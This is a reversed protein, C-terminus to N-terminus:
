HRFGLASNGGMLDALAEPDDMRKLHKRLEDIQRLVADAFKDDLVSVGEQARQLAASVFAEKLYAPTFGDSCEGVLHALSEM